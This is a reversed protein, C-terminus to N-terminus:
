KENLHELIQKKCIKEIDDRNLWHDHWDLVKLLSKELSWVPKWGLIKKAKSIDLKLYEAEHPNNRRDLRWNINKKWKKVMFQTIWKVTKGDDQNPGFNWGGSYKNEDEYLKQALLLYGSLVDIVHQWPRIADPNRIIITKKKEFARLIDPILRDTSWDGGGIVNGGRASALAIKNNKFFSRRYASSILESCGKSSSYPDYGGMPEDEKYGRKLGKNEYCKDTTVNIVANVSKINRVAELINITGMINTEYTEVPNLYSYRVLPQAALHLVIHPKYKKFINLVTNYDRIDGLISVMGKAINAQEFLSPKTLPKQAFGILDVGMMKLWISLWSGKFGTHGTLLVKKGLWFNPDVINHNKLAMKELSSQWKGM